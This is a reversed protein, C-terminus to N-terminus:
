RGAPCELVQQFGPRCLGLNRKAGVGGEHSGGWIESGATCMAHLLRHPPWPMTHFAGPRVHETAGTGRRSVWVEDDQAPPGVSSGPRWSACATEAAPGGAAM